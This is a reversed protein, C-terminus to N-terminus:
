IINAKDWYKKCLSQFNIEARLFQMHFASIPNLGLSGLSYEYFFSYMEFIKGIESLM